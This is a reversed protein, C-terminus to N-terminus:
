TLSKLDSKQFFPRCHRSGFESITIDFKSTRCGIAYINSMTVCFVKRFPFSKRVYHTWANRQADDQASFLDRHSTKATSGSWSSPAFRSRNVFNQEGEYIGISRMARHTRSWKTGSLIVRPLITSRVIYALVKGETFNKPTVKKEFFTVFFWFILLIMVCLPQACSTRLLKGKLFTKPAVKKWFPLLIFGLM